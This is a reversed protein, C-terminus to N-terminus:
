ACRIAQGIRLGRLLASSHEACLGSPVPSLQWSRPRDATAGSARPAQWPRRTAETSLYPMEDRFAETAAVRSENLPERIPRAPVRRTIQLYSRAIGDTARRLDKAPCYRDRRRRRSARQM